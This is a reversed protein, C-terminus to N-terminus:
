FNSEEEEKGFNEIMEVLQDFYHRTTKVDFGFSKNQRIRDAFEKVQQKLESCTDEQIDIPIEDDGGFSSLEEQIIQQLKSKTLKM